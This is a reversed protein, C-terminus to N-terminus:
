PRADSSAVAAEPQSVSETIVRFGVNYVGLYPKYLLRFGSSARKPRDSWGGGRAIRENNSNSYDGGTWEAVNGHMDYLGWPNPKFSGVPSSVKYGDNINGIVPKWEDIAGSPLSWPTYTDVRRFSQDALNAYPSFDAGSEGYWMDTAAGARCAYEWQGESPLTFKMGTKASLWKCFDGAKDWSVKVVPQNAGNLPYGREAVSFQLFEGHELRSDHLPDFRAYERNTVEYLGMWFPKEITVIRGAMVFQGAPIYTLKMSVGDGLDVTREINGVLAEQRLKAKHSDFPWDACKVISKDNGKVGTAVPVVPEPLETVTPIEEPNETINAYLKMMESRRKLQNEVKQSGVVETWTGHAPTNLDIWTIVRDWAEADLEVGYHGAELLQVLETTDAHFEGAPLLHIDSEITHSRVYSTLNRYSPSFNAGYKAAIPAARRLDPQQKSDHCGVCYEDLVPQVERKFSFGRVPGYWPKIESPLKSSAITRKSSPTANQRQHCGVCSVVEGPMPTFWSRMLQLAKGESDLPQVSIPTNAPVRFMASGDSEVPVTGMIRKIDWPGDIGIRNQQGGMGHYAFHYTFLRLSKVEGRGVGALGPGAYVDELYVVADKRSTDVKPAVVPPASRKAVPTPEFMAFGDVEKILTLNNFVDALYIGWKAQPNPQASVIFYKDSLPYPHLFKPWSAGVLGDLIKAEVKEGRDSIRQIVGETEFRGRATDFLILEGMRPVDHHGGIIAVFKSSSGPVARAYFMANPWYSNSGYYEMQGTGDPNMHFLIRSVFHPIDSYEWHLYMVRGNNLVTPCWDHDQGFTLRRINGGVGEYLYLNSVHSSGTVCPVGVFPATSSFIINGDPLYCADYNDVDNEEILRLQRLNGGDTDIEFIQWRSNEAPMSFLMKGAGFHMDIDGVFRGGEPRYVTEAASDPNALSVVAIENDIGSRPLTSNSEWNMPLALNKASRKVVIIEDFDILPNSLLLERKFDVLAEGREMAGEDGAKVGAVISEFQKEFADLKARIEGIDGYRGGFNVAMDEAALRLAEFDVMELQSVRPSDAIIGASVTLLVVIILIQVKGINIKMQTLEM